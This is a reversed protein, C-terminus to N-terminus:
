ISKQAAFGVGVGGLPAKISVLPSGCAAHWMGDVSDHFGNYKNSDIM